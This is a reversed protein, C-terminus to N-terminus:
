ENKIVGRGKKKSGVFEIKDGLERVDRKITKVNVGIISAFSKQNFKNEKVVKLILEQREKKPINKPINKRNTLINVFFSDDFEFFVKNGNENCSNKIRNIGTGVKEMYSTKSLLDVLLRNRQESVEGFNTEEFLLGGKNNVIIKDQLKEVDNITPERIAEISYEKGRKQITNPIMKLGGEQGSSVSPKFEPVFRNDNGLFANQQGNLEVSEGRM